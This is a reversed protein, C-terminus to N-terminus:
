DRALNALVYGAAIGLCQPSYFIVNLRAFPTGDAYSFIGPVFGAIGRLAFVGCAFAVLAASAMLATAVFMCAWFDPAKMGSTRGVVMEVLTQDDHGPWRGGLGWYLHLAALAILMSIVILACFNM